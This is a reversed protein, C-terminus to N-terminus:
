WIAFFHHNISGIGDFRNNIFLCYDGKAKEVALNNGGAFGLNKKSTILDIEPFEEKLLEPKDDPSGNDVVLIEVKPYSIKRLSMLLERTVASQNYNVTIISVLSYEM